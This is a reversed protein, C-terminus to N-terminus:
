NIEPVFNEFFKKFKDFNILKFKKFCLCRRKYLTVINEATIHIISQFPNYLFKSLIRPQLEEIPKM